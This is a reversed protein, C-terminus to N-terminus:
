EVYITINKNQVYPFNATGTFAFHTVSLVAPGLEEPIAVSIDQLPPHFPGNYLIKGIGYPEVAPCSLPHDSFCPNFGIVVAVETVPTSPTSTYAVEVTIVKGGAVLSNDAPQTIKVEQALAYTVASVALAALSLLKM